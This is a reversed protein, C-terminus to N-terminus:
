LMGRIIAYFSLVNPIIIYNLIFVEWNLLKKSNIYFYKEIIQICPKSVLMLSNFQLQETPIQNGSMSIGSVNSYRSNLHSAQIQLTIQIASLFQRTNLDDSLFQVM